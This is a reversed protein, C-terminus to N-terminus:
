KNFIDSITEIAYQCSCDESSRNRLHLQYSGGEESKFGVRMEWSNGFQKLKSYTGSVYDNSGLKIHWLSAHLGGEFQYQSPTFSIPQNATLVICISEGTQLFLLQSCYSSGSNYPLNEPATIFKSARGDWSELSLNDAALLQSPAPSACGAMLSLLAGILLAIRLKM